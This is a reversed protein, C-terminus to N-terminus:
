KFYGGKQCYFSEDVPSVPLACRRLGEEDIRIYHKTTNVSMHGLVESIIPLQTGHELLRKTLSFRFVHCGHKRGEVAIGSAVFRRNVMTCLSQASLHSYPYVAKLFIYPEDSKPRGYQIYDLIANGVDALLPHCITKGTKFQTINIVCREWDINSFMLYSLDSARWGLRIATLIITYDRKGVDTGRDISKLLAQLEEEKYYSPLESEGIYKDCPVIKSLDEKAFNNTYAYYLLQRVIALADHNRASHSKDFSEVFGYIEKSTVNAIDEIGKKHLFLNFFSLLYENKEITNQKVYNNAKASLFQSILIGIEGSLYRFKKKLEIKGTEVFELLVLISKEILKENESLDSHDRGHYFRLLAERCLKPTLVSVGLEKAYDCVCQWRYHYHRLTVYKLGLVDRMYDYAEKEAVTYFPKKKSM